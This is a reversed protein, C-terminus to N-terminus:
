FLRQNFCILKSTIICPIGVVEVSGLEEWDFLHDARVRSAVGQKGYRVAGALVSVM